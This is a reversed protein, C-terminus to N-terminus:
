KKGAFTGIALERGSNVTWSGGIEQAAPGFFGGNATGNLPDPSTLDKGRATGAFTNGSITTDIVISEWPELVAPNYSVQMNNLEGTVKGAAFDASLVADGRLIASRDLFRDVVFGITHGAYSATGTKPVSGSPTPIGFAVLGTKIETGSAETWHGYTTYQLGLGESGPKWLAFTINDSKHYVTITTDPTVVIDGPAFTQDFAVGGHSVMVRFSDSSVDYSVTNAGDLGQGSAQADAPRTFHM